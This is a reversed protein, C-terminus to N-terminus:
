VIPKHINESTIHQKTTKSRHNLVIADRRPMVIIIIHVYHIRNFLFSFYKIKRGGGYMFHIYIFIDMLRNDM